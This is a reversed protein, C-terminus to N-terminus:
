TLNATKSKKPAKSTSATVKKQEIKPQYAIM